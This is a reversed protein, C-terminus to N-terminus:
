EKIASLLKTITDFLKRCQTNMYNDSITFTQNMSSNSVKIVKYNFINGMKLYDGDQGEYANKVNFSSESDSSINKLDKALSFEGSTIKNKLNNLLSEEELFDLKYSVTKIFNKTYKDTFNIFGVPVPVTHTTHGFSPQSTPQNRYNNKTQIQNKISQIQM